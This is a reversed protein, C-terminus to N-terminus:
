KLQYGIIAGPNGPYLDVTSAVRHQYKAYWENHAQKVDPLNVDDFVIGGKKDGILRMALETDIAVDPYHHSGDILVWGVDLSVVMEDTLDKAFQESTTEFLTVNTLGNINELTNKKQEGLHEHREVMSTHSTYGDEIFPDVAYIQKSPYAKAMEAISDGNFVGIELYNHTSRQLHDRFFEHGPLCFM